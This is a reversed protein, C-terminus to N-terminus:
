KREGKENYEAQPIETDRWATYIKRLMEAGVNKKFRNLFYRVGKDRFLDGNTM